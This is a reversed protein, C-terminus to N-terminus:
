MTFQPRRGSSIFLRSARQDLEIGGRGQGQSPPPPPPLPSSSHRESKVKVHCVDGEEWEGGRRGGGGGGQGEGDSLRGRVTVGARSTTTNPPFSAAAEFHRPEAPVGASRCLYVCLVVVAVCVVCCLDSILRSSVIPFFFFLCSAVSIDEGRGPRGCSQM